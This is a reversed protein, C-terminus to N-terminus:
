DGSAHFNDSVESDFDILGKFHRCLRDDSKKGAVSDHFDQVIDAKPRYYGTVFPQKWRM